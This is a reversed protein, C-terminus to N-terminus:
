CQSSTKPLALHCSLAEGGVGVVCLRRGGQWQTAATRRAPAERGDAREGGFRLRRAGRTRAHLQTDGGKWFPEVGGLAVPSCTLGGCRPVPGWVQLRPHRGAARPSRLCGTLTRNAKEGQARVNEQRHHRPLYQGLPRARNSCMRETRGGPALERGMYEANPAAAAGNCRIM